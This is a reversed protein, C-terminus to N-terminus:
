NHRQGEYHLGRYNTVIAVEGEGPGLAVGYRMKRMRIVVNPGRWNPYWRTFSEEGGQKEREMVAAQSALLLIDLQQPIQIGRGGRGSQWLADGHVWGLEAEDRRAIRQTTEESSQKCTRKRCLVATQEGQSPCCDEEHQTRNSFGKRDANRDKNESDSDPIPAPAAM